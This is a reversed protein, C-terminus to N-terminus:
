ASTWYDLVLVKEMHPKMLEIFAQHEPHPLYIARDEESLFTVLFCHTFGDTLGEVSMDLGWEFDYILDIKSPMACFANQIDRMKSPPTEEKWQFLVIHRLLMAPGKKRHHREKVSPKDGM